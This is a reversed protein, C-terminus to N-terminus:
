ESNLLWFAINLASAFAVWAMLPLWLLAALRDRTKFLRFTAFIAGLQLLIEVVAWGIQHFLFFIFSWLFNLTLQLLFVWIAASRLSFGDQGWARWAAVAMMLYLLTWVPAFVADPPAFSPRVLTQYWGRVEPVTVQGGVFGVALCLLILSLLYFLSSRTMGGDHVLSNIFSAFFLFPRGIAAKM